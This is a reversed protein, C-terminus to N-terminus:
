EIVLELRALQQAMIGNGDNCLLFSCPLYFLCPHFYILIDKNINIDAHAIADAPLGYLGFQLLKAAAFEEM